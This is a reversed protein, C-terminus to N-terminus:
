DEVKDLFDGTKANLTKVLDQPNVGVSLGRRGGSVLIEDYQLASQSLLTLTRRKQGFPSVGGIVYGTIRTAEAPDAVELAKLGMIRAANKLSIMANVPTVATVYTKDHKLLITKFVKHPDMGLEAAAHHGFDHDVKCDYEYEKFPIKNKKLFNQAPTIM